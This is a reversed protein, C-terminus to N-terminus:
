DSDEEMMEQEQRKKQEKKKRFRVLDVGRREKLLKGILPGYHDYLALFMSESNKPKKPEDEEEEENQGANDLGAVIPPGYIAWLGGFLPKTLKSPLNFEFPKLEKGNSDVKPSKDHLYRTFNLADYNYDGGAKKDKQVVDIRRAQLTYRDGLLISARCINHSEKGSYDLIQESGEVPRVKFQPRGKKEVVKSSNGLKNIVGRGGVSAANPKRRKM